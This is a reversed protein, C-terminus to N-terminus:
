PSVERHYLYGKTKLTWGHALAWPMWGKRGGASILSAGNDRAYQLIKAHMPDVDGVDGVMAVIHLQKARPFDHVETIAWTNNVAFSQMRGDHIRTLLDDVTYINGM